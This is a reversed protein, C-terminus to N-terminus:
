HTYFVKYFFNKKSMKKRLMVLHHIQAERIRAKRLSRELRHWGFGGRPDAGVPTVTRPPAMRIRAEDRYLWVLRAHSSPPRLNRKTENRKAENRDFKLTLTLM